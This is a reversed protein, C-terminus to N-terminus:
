SRNCHAQKAAVNRLTLKLCPILSPFCASTVDLFSVNLYERMTKQVLSCLLLKYFWFLTLYFTYLYSILVGLSCGVVILESLIACFITRALRVWTLLFLCLDPISTILYWVKYSLSLLVLFRRMWFCRSTLGKGAPSWLAVLCLCPLIDFVFVFLFIWLLHVM